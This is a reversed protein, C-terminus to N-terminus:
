HARMLRDLYAQDRSTITVIKCRGEDSIRVYGAVECAAASKKHPLTILQMRGGAVTRLMRLFARDRDELPVTIVLAPVFESDKRNLM